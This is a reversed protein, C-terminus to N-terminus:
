IRISRAPTRFLVPAVVENPKPAPHEVCSEPYTQGSGVPMWIGELEKGGSKIDYELVAAMTSDGGFWEIGIFHGNRYFGTGVTIVSGNPSIQRFQIVGDEVRTELTITYMDGSPDTGECVYFPKLQPQSALVRPVVFVCLLLLSFLVRRM